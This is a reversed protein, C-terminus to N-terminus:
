YCCPVAYNGGGGCGVRCCCVVGKMTVVVEVTSTSHYNKVAAVVSWVDYDYDGLWGCEAVCWLAARFHHAAM